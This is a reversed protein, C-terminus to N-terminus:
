FKVFKGNLKEDGKKANLFYVGASLRSIDIKQIRSNITMSFAIKGTM